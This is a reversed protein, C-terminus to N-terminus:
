KLVKVYINKFEVPHSESQLAIYGEKLPEGKKDKLANYEGGIQPKSYSIVTEGNVKHSILSDALVLIELDVWQNGYYTKSASAICHTTVLTDSMFVHTGPTCLNATSRKEGKNIGGLLQVEVSVPFDQDIGMSQPSQSHIMVGSNREAWGEGGKVQNGIFRYQLKLIYSSYPSKYFIHGFRKDFKNYEDYNVQLAENEVRFTNYINEGLPYGKIKVQWNTLDEGNFLQVWENPPVEKKLTSKCKVFAPIIAAFVFLNLYYKMILSGM